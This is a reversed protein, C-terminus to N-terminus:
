EFGQDRLRSLLIQHDPNEVQPNDFTKRHSRSQEATKKLTESITGAKDPETQAQITPYDGTVLAVNREFSRVKSETWPDWQGPEAPQVPTQPAPLAKLKTSTIRASQVRPSETKQFKEKLIDVFTMGTGRTELATM